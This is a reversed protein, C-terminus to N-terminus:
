WTQGLPEQVVKKGFGGSLEREAELWDEEAHGPIQGRELYIEYARRAIEERGPVRVEASDRDASPAGQESLRETAVDAPKDSLDCNGEETPFLGGREALIRESETGGQAGRRETSLRTPEDSLNSPMRETGGESAIESQEGLREAALPIPKDVMGSAHERTTFSEDQPAPMGATEVGSNKSSNEASIGEEVDGVRQAGEHSVDITTSDPTEGGGIRGRWSGTEKETQEIFERFHNLDGEVQGAPIGLVDGAMELLGEPQYEITLTILTRELELPEFSVEGANRTGDISVWAIKKDPVQETIEAQWQKDKGAIRAKWFLRNPGEQRVEAVGEMFRPFEEFQTWQNYVMRLPANVEISHTTSGM